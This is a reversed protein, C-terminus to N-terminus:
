NEEKKNRKKIEKNRLTPMPVTRNEKRRANTINYRPSGWM